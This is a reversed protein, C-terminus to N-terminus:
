MYRQGLKFACMRWNLIYIGNRESRLNAWSIAQPPIPGDAQSVSQFFKQPLTMCRHYFLTNSIQIIFM